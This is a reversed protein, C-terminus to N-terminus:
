VVEIPLKEMLAYFALADATNRFTRSQDYAAVVSVSGSKIRELLSLFAKRKHTSGGSLDLDSYVEVQDCAAAAPLSRCAQEQVQPSVTPQSVKHHSQRVYILALAM